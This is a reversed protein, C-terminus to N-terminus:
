SQDWSELTECKQFPIYPVVLFQLHWSNVIALDQLIKLKIFYFSSTELRLCQASLMNSINAMCCVLIQGFKM